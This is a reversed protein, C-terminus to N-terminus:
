DLSYTSPLAFLGLSRKRNMLSACTWLFESRAEVSSSDVCFFKKEVSFTKRGSGSVLSTFSFINEGGESGSESTMHSLALFLSRSLEVVSDTRERRTHTTSSAASFKENM